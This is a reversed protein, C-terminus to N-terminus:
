AALAAVMKEIVGTLRDAEYQALTTNKEITIAETLAPLTTAGYGLWKGPAVGLHRYWERDKIGAEHIFGSEFTALKKNIKRIHKVARLFRRGPGKPKHDPHKHDPHKPWPFHPHHPVHPWEPVTSNDNQSTVARTVPVVESSNNVPEFVIEYHHRGQTLESKHDTFGFFKKIKSTAKKFAHKCHHWHRWRNILHKLLYEARFKERDLHLSAIQLTKISARLPVFNPTVSSTAALEEVKDLYAELEFAYHTTNLPLVISNAIRLAQLGLNKAVAVHKVFGPDGYREMWPESDFISHYHYVADSLTSGFGGSDASAIGIRQLFVTYDSGSGLPRIGLGDEAAGAMESSCGGSKETVDSNNGFYIGHDYHADWLTRKPDTPHPIEEATGRVLHALSPSASAGFRSGSVSSDLNLYAVVHEKIWDEFDEGWETSGILGYEEADWSAIVITRLPKWGERLLAGFGRIIEHVSVTGSSPDSAGLVWADRHNGIIVVEDKIHGPIVGMPNWIPTVKDDVQNVLKVTRGEKDGEIEKLLVKANEWSIPLSPIGPINSGETRTANEYAPYGPTTPDGPYVSLYQVSGRQVSRPNRAPGNPYADYGNEVTVTGDDRPDSYILVAAAGLDQARKVKLGRFIGGYRTLVIAGTFNVGKDVLDDYDEKRGYDAYILKGTAEGGRSLGHWTPVAGYYTWADGDKDPDDAHEELDASWAVKDGDLIELTRNLPTNMVPYYVDVWAAPENLEHISLTANRSEESGAPFIPASTSNPLGLERQLLALFDMATQLDGDSGALHPKGAYQRSAGIASASNPVALFLEEAKRGFPVHPKPPRLFADTMWLNKRGACGHAKGVEADADKRRLGHFALGFLWRHILIWLLSFLVIRRFLKWGRSRKRKPSQTVPPTLTEKDFDFDKEEALLPQTVSRDDAM